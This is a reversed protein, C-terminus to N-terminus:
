KGMWKELVRRNTFYMGPPFTGSMMRDARGDVFIKKTPLLNIDANNGKFIDVSASSQFYEILVYHKTTISPTVAKIIIEEIKNPNKPGIYFLRDQPELENFKKSALGHRM